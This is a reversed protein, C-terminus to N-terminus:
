NFKRKFFWSNDNLTFGLSLQGYTEQLSTDDSGLKGLEFSVNVFSAQQRPLIVPLGFGITVATNTLSNNLIERYDKRYIFGARYEVRELYTKYNKANPTYSGGISFTSANVFTQNGVANNEFKSWATNTFNVGLRLKNKHVYQAGFGITGPYTGKSEVGDAFDFTDRIIFGSAVRERMILLDQTTTTKGNFDVHAGVIVRKESPKDDKAAKKDPM